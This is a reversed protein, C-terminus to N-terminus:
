MVANLQTSKGGMKVRVMKKYHRNKETASEMPKFLRGGNLTIRKSPITNTQLGSKGRMLM